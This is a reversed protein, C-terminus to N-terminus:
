LEGLKMTDLLQEAKRRLPQHGAHTGCMVIASSLAASAHAEDGLIEFSLAALYSSRPDSIRVMASRCFCYIAEDHRQLRQYCLGVALWYDFRVPDVAVLSFYIQRAGEYDGSAYRQCGYGYLTDM